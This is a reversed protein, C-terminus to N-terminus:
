SIFICEAQITVEMGSLKTLAPYFSELGGRLPPNRSAIERGLVDYIILKVDMAGGKSPNPLSFKIKTSPNFPNPYNQSLSYSNPISSSQKLNGVIIFSTDGYVLGNIVRGVLTEDWWFSGSGVLHYYNNVLGVGRDYERDLYGGIYKKKNTTDSCVYYYPSQVCRVWVVDNLGSRLSDLMVENNCSNGPDYYYIKGNLSDIRITNYYGVNFPFMFSSFSCTFQGVSSIHLVERSYYFYQKGSYSVTDTIKIRVRDYSTCGGFHSGYATMCYYVFINGIKLNMYENYNISYSFSFNILLVFIIKKM